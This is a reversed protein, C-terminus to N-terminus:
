RFPSSEEVGALPHRDEGIGGHEVLGLSAALVDPDGSSSRPRSESSGHGAIDDEDDAHLAEEDDLEHESFGIRDYIRRMWRPAWWNFEGAVKTFAPVLTARVLTADMLVALALGLGFLKIFTISSTSFALFTVALLAAAATVIRGTRELGMAVSATNDGTRDHEEKIRSLLFVEYDMSLGFAICFMLIPTTIDTMGTPTFGLFSAGHGEQFVWVMAGFTASLSLLNLVIAKLPIVVSGFMLFLLAFTAFAIIGAALPLRDAIAAKSDVLQAAAGGVMVPGITPAIGRIHHVLQEGADSIPTVRPVVSFRAAGDVRYSALSPDPPLVRRGGVYRGTSADVRAVGDLRSLQAAYAGVLTDSYGAAQSAVVPFAQAENSAFDTGLRDTAVRAPATAPLVRQDPTGFNVRLFPLGLFVLLGVVALSVLVPRRMVWSATRHWFGSEGPVSHSSRRWLRLSNVRTGLLALVAPLTLVSAFMSVLTVGIGAWAFSRLFYMPFVLLASLSVGVTLASFAVTRGATSVTRVVAEDVSRGALLEERFRSVIFLSYDIALGLGMATVLNISFVSVSTFGTVVWLTVFTGLVSVMGVVLPLGAAVLGAFVLVLLVLTIPVAIEEAHGLDHKITTSVERFVPAQGGATVTIPGKDGTFRDLIPQVAKDVADEDGGIRALVLASNGDTSRLPAVRGFSWYSAVQAIDPRAALRQELSTAAAEVDPADVGPSTATGHTHADVVLVLNPDGTHFHSALFDKARTSEASPDAFGGASLRGFVGTGVVAAVAVFVLSGALVLGRHRVTFSGLRRFM